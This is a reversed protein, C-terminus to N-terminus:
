VFYTSLFQWKILNQNKELL